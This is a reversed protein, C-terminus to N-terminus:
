VTTIVAVYWSPLGLQLINGMTFEWDLPNNTEPVRSNVMSLLVNDLLDLSLDQIFGVTKENMEKKPQPKLQHSLFHNIFENMYDVAQVHNKKTSLRYTPTTLRTDQKTATSYDYLRSKLRKGPRSNSLDSIYEGSTKEAAPLKSTYM